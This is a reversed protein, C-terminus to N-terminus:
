VSKERRGAATKRNGKERCGKLSMFWNARSKSKKAIKALGM